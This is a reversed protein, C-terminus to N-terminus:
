QNGSRISSAGKGYVIAIVVGAIIKEVFHWLSDVWILKTPLTWVTWLMIMPLSWVLGILFGFRLGEIVPNGGKYGIPYIFAMVFGLILYVLLMIAFNPETRQIGALQAQEDYWKGLIPGHWVIMLVVLLLFGALGSLIIKKASM